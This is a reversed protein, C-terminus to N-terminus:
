SASSDAQMLGFTNGETDACYALYGIGPVAMKPALVKGGHAIVKQVVEDVSPVDVTNVINQFLDSRRTIAGDIGPEPAEGTKILWYEQPGDWQNIEWNFVGSYFSVARAPDDAPLEFHIFRGVTNRRSQFMPPSPLALIERGLASCRGRTM